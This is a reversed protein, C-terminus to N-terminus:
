ETVAKSRRPELGVEKPVSGSRIEDKMRGGEDKVFVEGCRQFEAGPM